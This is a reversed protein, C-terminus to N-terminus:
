ESPRPRLERDIFDLVEEASASRMKEAVATSTASGDDEGLGALIAQLRVKARSRVLEDSAENALLRELKDLEVDVNATSQSGDPTVHELLYTTLLEPTPYDFVLTAPLSVGLTQNLRNRLEIAALSDFGLEKFSRTAEVAEASALGLVTAIHISLADRVIREHEHVSTTALREALAGSEASKLHRAPSRVLDRLMSPLTEAAAHASLVPMDLRVPVLLPEDRGQAVDFLELAEIESMPLLGSRRMRTRDAEELGETMGGGVDWPGWALAVGPLGKARRHAALADMFANATAYNSQGMGGLVGSVSSFLVFASLDLHETLRHLHWAGDLKPALVRDVREATLSGVVGDDIVGAVHVVARLPHEGPVSALLARLQEREAVDCTAISVQAGMRELDSALEAAGEASRGSRSAILVHRAEYRAVLHKAVLGGLGGTGGTVLVTGGPDFPAIAGPVVPETAPEDLLEVPALRPVLVDGRRIALQPEDLLSAVRLARPLSELSSHEEDLDVILLRRPNETTASRILGWIGAQELGEVSEEGGVAIANRTVFALRSPALSTDSLWAQVLELATHVAGRARDAVCDEHNQDGGRDHEGLPPPDSQGLEDSACDVLVVEPLVAGNRLAESLSDLDRYLELSGAASRLPAALRASETGLLAGSFSSPAREVAPAIWDIRFLAGGSDQAAAGLQEVTVPRAVLSRVSAVPAGNEDLAQLSAGGAVTKSLCARLSHTGAKRVSVGSWAFPIMLQSAGLSYATGAHMAADLLAPHVQFSAARAWEHEPLRIEAFLEDGRRWLTKVGLFAPGFDVGVGAMHEYLSEVAVPEADHPPWADVISPIAPTAATEELRALTGSAHRMWESAESADGGSRERSHSYIEIAWCGVEEERERLLIQLQVQERGSFVLPVEMVLEDVLDCGAHEAACLALDVFTTGPVLVVGMVVHDEVWPQDELSLQGSFLWGRGDALAVAENLIPHKGMSPVHPTLSHSPQLGDLWYRRRQFAYTPLSVRRADVGDFARTWDVAHGRVWVDALTTLLTSVEPREGRLASAVGISSRTAEDEQISDSLCDLSMASLVGDPGVELLYSTGQSALWQVCDYFRVPERVQNVWYTPDGMHEALAPEGTLNSVIPIRPAAFALRGAIERYEELMDVMRPSHFAHSVRLRKTKRGRSSWVAELELVVDEDGSLVVSRPGNVAALSVREELGEISQRAEPESAQVSVMAGGEPLAGMLRGRAAVLECADELGIVGGVHAASLEGISHGLLYDARLGFDELLRFLALELAFLGPQAFMTEDLLLRDARSAGNEHGALVNEGEGFMLDRLSCKLHEDLYGCAEDLARSFVAFRGYLDRGM